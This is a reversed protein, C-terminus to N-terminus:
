TLTANRDLHAFQARKAKAFTQEFTRSANRLPTLPEAPCQEIPWREHKYGSIGIASKNKFM